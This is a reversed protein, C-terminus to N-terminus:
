HKVLALVPDVIIHNIGARKAFSIQKELYNKVDDVVDSYSPNEQMIQPSGQKHMLVIAANHKAVIDLM